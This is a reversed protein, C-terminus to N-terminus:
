HDGGLQQQLQFWSGVDESRFCSCLDGPLGRVQRGDHTNIGTPSANQELVASPLGEITVSQPVIGTSVGEFRIVADGAPVDITRTEVILALGERDLRSWSQRSREMLEVTDVPRDRYIVM